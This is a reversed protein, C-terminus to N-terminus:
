SGSTPILIEVVDSLNITRGAVVLQAVGSSFTVGTITATVNATASVTSGDKKTGAVSLVYEGSPLGKAGDDLGDWSVSTNGAAEAGLHLTRVVKGNADAIVATTDDTADALSLQFTSPTGAVLGVRDAHFLAQKGVLSATSLQNSAATATVVEDFKTSLNQLQELSSFQALQAVMQSNDVPNLPDQNQLQKTLLELFQDKGLANSPPVVPTGVSPLDSLSSITSTTTM